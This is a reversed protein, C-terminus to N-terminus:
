CSLCFAGASSYKGASCATCSSLGTSNAYYGAPCITCAAAGASSYHGVVCSTCASVGLTTLSEGNYTGAPCSVCSTGSLYTGASCTAVNPTVVRVRNNNYDSIYVNGSADVNVRASVSICASTAAGGDGSFCQGGTGAYTTIIGTSKIVLRIRDNTNDAIYVNGSADVAVGIPYYGLQAGTAPKGDGSFGATETGAYTTIIGTSQTVLRIKYNNTDCIYVNGSVDVAVDSPFFLQASTAAGGDGSSGATGTGAYTTIIGTSQTVLRIKHNNNDANYVNGSADVAVAYPNYLQASTAPGGDGSSGQTGTGAYTTIIGTSKTVLRVKGDAIYVNGSADM